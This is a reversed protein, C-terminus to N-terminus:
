STGSSSEEQNGYKTIVWHDEAFKQIMYSEPPMMGPTWDVGESAFFGNFAGEREDYGEGGVAINQGNPSQKTWYWQWVPSGSIGHNNRRFHTRHLLKRVGPIPPKEDNGYPLSM